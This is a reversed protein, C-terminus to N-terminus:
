DEDEIRRVRCAQGDLDLLRANSCDLLGERSKEALARQMESEGFHPGWYSHEMVFGRPNGLVQHWVYLAAGLSRGAEGAVSQIYVDRFDTKAFIKGNAVSNMACGGALCLAKLGTKKQLWNVRHFVAEEYMAQLPGARDHQRETLQSGPERAAGM